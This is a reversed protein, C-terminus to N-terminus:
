VCNPDTQNRPPASHNDAPHDHLVVANCVSQRITAAYRHYIWITATGSPNARFSTNSLPQCPLRPHYSAAGYGPLRGAPTQAPCLSTRALPNVLFLSTTSDESTRRPSGSACRVKVLPLPSLAQPLCLPRKVPFGLYPITFSVELTISLPCSQPNQSPGALNGLGIRLASVCRLM